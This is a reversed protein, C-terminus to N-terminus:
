DDSHPSCGHQYDTNLDNVSFYFQMQDFAIRKIIKSLAPLLGIPRSNSSHFLVTNNKPLPIIKAIKWAQPFLGKEFSLNLVHCIPAAILDAVLKLLKMDMNDVGAPKDKCALLLKEVHSITM